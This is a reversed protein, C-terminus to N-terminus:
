KLIGAFELKALEVAARTEIEQLINELHPNYSKLRHNKIKSSLLNLNKISIRGSLLELRLKDLSSLIENAHGELQKENDLDFYLPSTQSIDKSSVVSSLDDINNLLSVFDSSDNKTNKKSLKTSSIGSSKINNNIKM